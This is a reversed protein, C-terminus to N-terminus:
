YDLDPRRGREEVEPRIKSIISIELFRGPPRQIEILKFTFPACQAGTTLENRASKGGNPAEKIPSLNSLQSEIPGKEAWFLKLILYRTIFLIFYKFFNFKSLVIVLYMM